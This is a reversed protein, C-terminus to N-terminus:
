DFFKDVLFQSWKVLLIVVVPTILLTATAAAVVEFWDFFTNM